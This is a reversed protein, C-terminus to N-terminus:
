AILDLDSVMEVIMTIELKICDASALDNLGFPSINIGTIGQLELDDLFTKGNEFKLKHNKMSDGKGLFYNVFYKQGKGTVKTTKSISVRGDSHTIATEKIRFLGLDMARQTPSNWDTGKRKILFGDNRLRAFLRNQGIEVGNGKLIKALEGILITTDSTSVADAFLAKPKMEKIQSNKQEITRQAILFAKALIESDDDTEEVKIYGGTKRIAPLVEHTVWRKFKRLKEIREKVEIPYADQLEDKNAKQPQMAFLLSYLGSENIFIATQQRGLSDIIKRRLKDEDDIRGLSRNHNTDGFMQCVDKGLFWPENKVKLTRITGLNSNKFIQLDQM